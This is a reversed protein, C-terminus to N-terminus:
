QLPLQQVSLGVVHLPLLDVLDALVLNHGNSVRGVEDRAECPTVDSATYDFSRGTGLLNCVSGMVERTISTSTM